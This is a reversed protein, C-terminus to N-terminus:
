QEAAIDLFAAQTEIEVWDAETGGQATFHAKCASTATEGVAKAAHLWSAYSRLYNELM